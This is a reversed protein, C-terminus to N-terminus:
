GDKSDKNGKLLNMSIHPLFVQKDKRTQVCNSASETFIDKDQKFVVGQYVLRMSGGMKRFKHKDPGHRPKVKDVM